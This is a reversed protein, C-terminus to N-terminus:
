PAGLIETQWQNLVAEVQTVPIPPDLFQARALQENIEPKLKMAIIPIGRHPKDVVFTLIDTDFCVTQIREEKPIESLQKKRVIVSRGPSSSGPLYYVFCADRDPNSFIALKLINREVNDEPIWALRFERLTRYTVFRMGEEPPNRLTLVM